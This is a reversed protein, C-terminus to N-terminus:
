WFAHRRVRASTETGGPSWSNAEPAAACPCPIVAPSDELHSKQKNSRSVPRTAYRGKAKVFFVPSVYAVFFMLTLLTRM